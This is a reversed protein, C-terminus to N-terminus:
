IYKAQLLQHMRTATPGYLTAFQVFDELANHAEVCKSYHGFLSVVIKDQTDYSLPLAGGNIRRLEPYYLDFKKLCPHMYLREKDAIAKIAIREANVGRTIVMHLEARVLMGKSEAAFLSGVAFYFVLGVRLNM